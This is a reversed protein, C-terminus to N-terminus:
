TPPKRRKHHLYALIAIAVIPVIIVGNSLALSTLGAPIAFVFFLFLGVTVSVSAGAVIMIAIFFPDRFELAQPWQRTSGYHWAVGVVFFLFLFGVIAPLPLSLVPGLWADDITMSNRVLTKLLLGSRRSADFM